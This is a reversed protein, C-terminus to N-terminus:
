RSAIAVQDFAGLVAFSCTVFRLRRSRSGYGSSGGHNCFADVAAFANGAFRRGGFCRSSLSFFGRDSLRDLRLGLSGHTFHDLGSWDCLVRDLCLRDGSGFGRSVHLLRGCFRDHLGFRSYFDSLLRSWRRGLFRRGGRRSRDSGRAARRVIRTFHTAALAFSLTQGAFGGFSCSCRRGHFFSRRDHLLASRCLSFGDSDFGGRGSLLSGLLARVGALLIRAFRYLLRLWFFCLGLFLLDFRLNSEEATLL